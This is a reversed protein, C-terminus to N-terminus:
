LYGSPPCRPDVRTDEYAGQVVVLAPEGGAPSDCPGDMWASMSEADQKPAVAVAVAEAVAM